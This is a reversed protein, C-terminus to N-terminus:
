VTEPGKAARGAKVTRCYHMTRIYAPYKPHKCIVYIHALGYALLLSFVVKGVTSLQFSIIAVFILFLTKGPATYLFGFNEAIKVSCMKLACEYCCLLISFFFLYLALFTTSLSASSTGINYFATFMLLGAIILMFIKLFRAFKRIQALEAEDVDLVAPDLKLPANPYFLDNDGEEKKVAEFAAQKAASQFMPNQVSMSMLSSM